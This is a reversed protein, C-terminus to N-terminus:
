VHARGIEGIAKGAGVIPATAMGLLAGGAKKFLQGPQRNYAKLYKQILEWPIRKQFYDTVRNDPPPNFLVGAEHLKALRQMAAGENYGGSFLDQLENGLMGQRAMGINRLTREKTPDDPAYYGPVGYRQTM